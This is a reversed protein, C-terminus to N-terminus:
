PVLSFPNLDRFEVVSGFAYVADKHEDIWDLMSMAGEYDNFYHKQLIRSGKRVIIEYRGKKM